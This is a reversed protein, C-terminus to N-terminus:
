AQGSGDQDTRDFLRQTARVSLGGGLLLSMLHALPLAYAQLSIALVAVAGIRVVSTAITIGLLSTGKGAGLLVGRPIQTIAGALTAVLFLAALGEEVYAAPVLAEFPSLPYAWGAIALYAVGAGVMAAIYLRAAGWAHASSRVEGAEM